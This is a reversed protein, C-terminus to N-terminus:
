KVNTGAGGSARRAINLLQRRVMIGDGPGLIFREIFRGGPANIRARM